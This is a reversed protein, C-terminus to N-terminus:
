MRTGLGNYESDKFMGWYFSMNEGKKNKHAKLM